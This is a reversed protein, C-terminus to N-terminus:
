ILLLITRRAALGINPVPSRDRVARSDRPSVESLSAPVVFPSTSVSHRKHPALGGHAVRSSRDAASLLPLDLCDRVVSVATSTSYRTAEGRAALAQQGYHPGTHAWEVAHHGGPALCYVLPLASALNAIIFVALLVPQTLRQWLRM